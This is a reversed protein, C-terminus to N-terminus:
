SSAHGCCSRVQAGEKGEVLKNGKAPVMDLGVIVWSNGRPYGEREM